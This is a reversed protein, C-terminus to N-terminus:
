LGAGVWGGFGQERMDESDGLGGLGQQGRESESDGTGDCSGTGKRLNEGKCLAPCCNGM